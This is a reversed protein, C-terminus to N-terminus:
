VIELFIRVTKNTGGQRWHGSRITKGPIKTIDVEVGLFHLLFEDFFIGKLVKKTISLM